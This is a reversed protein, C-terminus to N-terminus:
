KQTEYQAEYERVIGSQQLKTLDSFSDQFKNPGFQAHLADRFAHWNM